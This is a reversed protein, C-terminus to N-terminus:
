TPRLRPPDGARSLPGPDEANGANPVGGQHLMTPIASSGGQAQRESPSDGNGQQRKREAACLAGRSPRGQLAGRGQPVPTARAASGDVHDRLPAPRCSAVPIAQFDVPLRRNLLYVFVLPSTRNKEIGIPLKDPFCSITRQRGFGFAIHPYDEPRLDNDRKLCFFRWKDDAPSLWWCRRAGLVADLIM